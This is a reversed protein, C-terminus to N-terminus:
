NRTAQFSVRVKPIAPLRARAAKVPVILAQRHSWILRSGGGLLLLSIVIRIALGLKTSPTVVFSSASSAKASIPALRKGVASTVFAEVPSFRQSSKETVDDGNTTNANDSTTNPPRCLFVAASAAFAAIALKSIKKKTVVGTIISIVSASARALLNARSRIYRGTVYLAMLALVGRVAKGARTTPHAASTGATSAKAAVARSYVCLRSNALAARPVRVFWSPCIIRWLWAATRNGEASPEEPQIETAAKSLVDAQALMIQYMKGLRDRVASNAEQLEAVEAAHAKKLDDIDNNLTQEIQAAKSQAAALQEKVLEFPDRAVPTVTEINTPDAIVDKANESDTAPNETTETTVWGDGLSKDSAVSATDENDPQEVTTAAVVEGSALTEDDTTADASQFISKQARGACNTLQPGAYV